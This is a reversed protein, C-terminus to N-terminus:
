RPNSDRRRRLSRTPLSAAPLCDGPVRPRHPSAIHNPGLYAEALESTVPHREADDAVIARRERLERMYVPFDRARLVTGSIHRRGSRIFQEKCILARDQDELFWVSVRDVDLADAVTQTVLGLGASLAQGSELRVRALKLRATEFTARRVSARESAM